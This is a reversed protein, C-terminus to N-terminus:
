GTEWPPFLPDGSAISVKGKFHLISQDSSSMQFAGYAIGIAAARKVLLAAEVRVGMRNLTQSEGALACGLAANQLRACSNQLSDCVLHAEICVIRASTRAARPLTECSGLVSEPGMNHCYATSPINAPPPVCEPQDDLAKGYSIAGNWRLRTWVKIGCFHDHTLDLVGLAQHYKM